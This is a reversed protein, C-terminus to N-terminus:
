KTISNNDGAMKKQILSELAAEIRQQAKAPERHGNLIASLYKPHYNSEKALEISTIKHLHMKGILVATWQALM